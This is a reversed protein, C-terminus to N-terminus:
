IWSLRVVQKIQSKVIIEVIARYMLIPMGDRMIFILSDSEREIMRRALLCARAFSPKDPDCGYLEFTQKSESKLDMLEPASTQLKFAM